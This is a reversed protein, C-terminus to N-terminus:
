KDKLVKDWLKINEITAKRFFLKRYKKINNKLPFILEFDGKPRTLECFANEVIDNIKSKYTDKDFSKYNKQHSFPTIGVINLTDIFLNTKIIKDMKDYIYMFPRTNVELLAPELKSTILIDFGLVNFMYRDDLNLENTINIMTRQGSIITKIVIDKIKEFILSSNIKKSMLYKRYTNLNWKNASSDSSNKPYVYDENGHNIATNTLHIYKNEISNINLTYKSSAIRVLGEKNLYIRLPNFGTVLVYLRLDYKKGNIVHSNLYRSIIYNKNNEEKLSKFIHIGRGSFLNVPKVIWLNNSNLKYNKFTKEIIKKDKPYIYTIPMFTYNYPFYSKMYLYNTYLIDKEFYIYNGIFHYIKQYKNLENLKLIKRRVSNIDFSKIFLNHNLTHSYSRILGNSNLIKLYENFYIEDNTLYTVFFNKQKQNFTIKNLIINKNRKRNGYQFYITRPTSAKCKKSQVLLNLTQTKYYVLEPIEYKKVIPNKLDYKKIVPSFDLIEHLLYGYKVGCQNRQLNNADSLYCIIQNDKKTNIGYNLYLLNFEKLTICKQDLRFCKNKYIYQFDCQAVKYYNMDNLLNMSVESIDSKLSIIENRFDQVISHKVWHSIYFNGNFHIQTEPIKKNSLYYLKKISKFSESTKLLYLPTNFFNNRPQKKNRMFDETLGLCDTLARLLELLTVYKYNENNKIKDIDIKDNINLIAISPQVRLKDFQKCIYVRFNDQIHNRVPKGFFKYIPFIIIDATLDQTVIFKYDEKCKSMVKNDITINRINNCLVLKTLIKKGEKLLKIIYQTDDTRILNSYEYVIKIPHTLPTRFACNILEFNIFLIFFLFCRNFSKEM